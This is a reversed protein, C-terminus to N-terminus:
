GIRGDTPQTIARPRRTTRGLGPIFRGVRATYRTYADGHTDLLYPEEVARVQVQLAILLLITAALSAVTPALLFLGVSATAMATFVPNRVIAFIGNTVLNTKEGPDVGVRWSTGMAQQAWLLGATGAVALILGAVELLPAGPLALRGLGLLHSTPGALGALLAAVFLLKGWWSASGVPGVQLRVGSDGTHRRHTAARVGFALGLGALYLVLAIWGTM